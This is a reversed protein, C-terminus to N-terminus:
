PVPILERILVWKGQKHLIAYDFPLKTEKDFEILMLNWHHIQETYSIKGKNFHEKAISIVENTSSYKKETLQYVTTYNRYWPVMFGPEHIVAKFGISLSRKSECLFSNDDPSTLIVDEKATNKEIWEHMLTLDSKIYNGVQYRSKFSTFPIMASNLIIILLIISAILSYSWKIKIEPLKLYKALAVAIITSSVLEIWVATKFWQIRGISYWGILEFLLWYFLMGGIVIIYILLFAKRWEKNIGFKLAVLGSLIVFLFKLYDKLPFLSPAYHNPNRFFYLSQYLLNMDYGPSIFLQKLLIPFLMAGSSAFFFLFFSFINKITIEKKIMLLLTFIIFLHLGMLLQFLSALGVLLASTYIKNKLFYYLGWGCFVNAFVTCTLQMDELNNGGVTWSNFIILAFVPALLKSLPHHSFFAALKIISLATLAILVIHLMFVAAPVPLLLSFFYVVRVFFFRITFTHENASVFYDHPYLSPDLLKYVLPLHEEQDSCNFQYGKIFIFLVAVFVAYFFDKCNESQLLEKSNYSLM